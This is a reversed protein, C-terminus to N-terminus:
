GTDPLNIKKNAEKNLTIIKQQQSDSTNQDTSFFVEFKPFFKPFLETQFILDDLYEAAPFIFVYNSFLSYCYYFVFTKFSVLDSSTLELHRWTGSEKFRTQFCSRM